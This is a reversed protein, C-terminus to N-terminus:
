ALAAAFSAFLDGPLAQELEWVVRMPREGEHSVYRGPGLFHFARESQEHRAFLLM